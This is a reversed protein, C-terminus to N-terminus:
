RGASLDAAFHCVSTHGPGAAVSPPCERGCIEQARHCRPHFPCGPIRATPSPVDGRLVIRQSGASRARLGRDVDPVASLLAETYPHAPKGFLAEAPAEEVIRGLYM